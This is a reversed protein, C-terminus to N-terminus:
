KMDTLAKRVSSYHDKKKPDGFYEFGGYKDGVKKTSRFGEEWGHDALLIKGHYTVCELGNDEAIESLQDITFTKM